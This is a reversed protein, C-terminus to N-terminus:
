GGSRIFVCPSHRSSSSDDLLKVRANTTVEARSPLNTRTSGSALKSEVLPFSLHLSDHDYETRASTFPIPCNEAMLRNSERLIPCKALAQREMAERRLWGCCAM